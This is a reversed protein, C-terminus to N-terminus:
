TMDELDVNSLALMPDNLHYELDPIPLDAFLTTLREVAALAATTEDVAATQDFAISNELPPLALDGLVLRELVHEPSLQLRAAQQLLLQYTKEPIEITHQTM